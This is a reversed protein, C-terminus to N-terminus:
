KKNNKNNKNNKIKVGMQRAKRQLRYKKFNVILENLESLWMTEITTNKLIELDKMKEDKEKLLKDMNEEEVQEIRMTRLYKYELDEDFVDYNRTKLLEIVMDKKMKRLDIIDDCQELIFKAKNTLKKVIYEMNKIMYNKRESYKALRVVYYDDIIDYVNKYKKLGHNATFLNM